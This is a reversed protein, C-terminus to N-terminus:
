DFFEWYFGWWFTRKPMHYDGSLRYNQNTINRVIYYFHFDLFRITVKGNLIAVRPEKDKEYEDMFRESFANAELRLKISIERKLYENEFQIYGFVNHDPSYPLRTKSESNEGHKFTYSFYSTFYNLFKGSLYLNAGWIKAQSNIPKFHGYYLTTDVNSWFIYDDIKSVFAYGSIRYNGKHISAGLDASYSSQQKLSTNGEELYDTITDHFEASFPLWFRDMLTPNGAFRGGTSFLKVAGSLQYAVGGSLSIRAKLEEEKEIHTSFILNLKPNVKILDTMSFYVSNTEWKMKLAKLNKRELNGELKFYHRDDFSAIQTFNLSLVEDIKKSEFDYSKSKIEQNQKDLRFTLNSIANENEQMILSVDFRWNNVKKRIDQFRSDPFLPLGMTTKYQYTSLRLDMQKKLNFTTKGSLSMGDNDSNTLYGDSKNLETTVYFKGRSTLGRGLEVVTRRFGYPGRDDLLRSYPEANDFDKSIINVGTVGVGEGGRISLGVPLIEIESINSLSLTNLDMEGRQPFYLDQQQYLNGDVFIDVGRGNGAFYMNQPQSSPGVSLIYFLSRLGMLDGFSAGTSNDIDRYKIDDGLYFHSVMEKEISDAQIFTRPPEAPITDVLAQSKLSDTESVYSSDLSQSFVGTSMLCVFIAFLVQKM